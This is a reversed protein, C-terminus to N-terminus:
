VTGCIRRSYGDSFSSSTSAAKANPPSRLAAHLKQQILPNWYGDAEDQSVCPVLHNEEIFAPKGLSAGVGNYANRRLRTVSDENSGVVVHLTQRFPM